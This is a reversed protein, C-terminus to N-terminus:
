MAEKREGMWNDDSAQTESRPILRKLGKAAAVIANEVLPDNWEWEDFIIRWIRRICPDAVLMIWKGKIRLPLYIETYKERDFFKSEHATELLVTSEWSQTPLNIYADLPPLV